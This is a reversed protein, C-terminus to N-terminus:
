RNKIKIHYGEKGYGTQETSVRNYSLFDWMDQPWTIHTKTQPIVEANTEWNM